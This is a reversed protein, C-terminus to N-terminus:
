DKIWGIRKIFNMTYEASERKKKKEEKHYEDFYDSGILRNELTRTDMMHIAIKGKKLTEADDTILYCVANSKKNNSAVAALGGALGFAFRMAAAESEAEKGIPRNVFVIENDCFRYARVYGKGFATKELRLNRCNIYLSDQYILMFVEEKLKKDMVKDGTTFSCDNGGWWLKHANSHEEIDIKEIPTWVDNIFDSYSLCYKAEQASVHHTIMLLMVFVALRIKGM